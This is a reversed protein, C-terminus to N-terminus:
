RFPYFAAKSLQNKALNRPQEPSMGNVPPTGGGTAALTAAASVSEGAYFRHVLPDIRPWVGIVCRASEWQRKVVHFTHEGRARDQSHLRNIAKQHDSLLKSRMRRSNVRYRIGAQKACQRHFESWYANDGFREKEQGHLLEPLQSIDPTNAPTNVLSHVISRRDTGIHAKMGFYWEKDKRTQDMEPDCAQEAKRTSPPAAIITADVITGTKLLLRKEELM